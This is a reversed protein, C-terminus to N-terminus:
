LTEGWGLKFNLRMLGPQAVMGNFRVPLVKGFAQSIVKAQVLRQHLLVMDTARLRSVWFSGTDGPVVDIEPYYVVLVLQADFYWTSSDADVEDSDAAQPMELRFQRLRQPDNLAAPLTSIGGEIRVRQFRRTSILEPDVAEVETAVQLFINDITVAV